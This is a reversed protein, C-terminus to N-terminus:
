FYLADRGFPQRPCPGSGRSQIQYRAVGGFGGYSRAMGAVIGRLLPGHGRSGVPTVPSVEGSSSKGFCVGYHRRMWLSCM